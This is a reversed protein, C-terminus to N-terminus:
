QKELRFTGSGGRGSAKYAGELTTFDISFVGQFEASRAAKTRRNEPKAFSFRLDIERTQPNFYMLEVSEAAPHEASLFVVGTAQTFDGTLLNIQFVPPSDNERARAPTLTGAWTGRVTEPDPAQTQRILEFEGTQTFGQFRGTWKRYDDDFRGVCTITKEVEKGNSTGPSSLVVTMTKSRKGQARGRLIKWNNFRGTAASFDGKELTLSAKRSTGKQNVTTGAWEGRLLDQVDRKQIRKPPEVPDAEQGAMPTVGVLMALVAVVLKVMLLDRNNLTYLM